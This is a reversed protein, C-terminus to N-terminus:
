YLWGVMSFHCVAGKSKTKKKRQSRPRTPKVSEAKLYAMMDAMKDQKKVKPKREKKKKVVPAEEEDDDDFLSLDFPKQEGSICFM